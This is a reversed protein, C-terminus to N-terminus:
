LRGTLHLNPSYSPLFLLEIGSAMVTANWQYRANDLVLTAPGVLGWTAVARLRDCLTTVLDTVPGVDDWPRLSACQRGVLPPLEDPRPVM